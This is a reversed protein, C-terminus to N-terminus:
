YRKHCLVFLTSREPETKGSVYFVKIGTPFWISKGSPKLDRSEQQLCLSQTGASLILVASHYATLYLFGHESCYVLGEQFLYINQDDASYWQGTFQDPEIATRGLGAILFLLLIIFGFFSYRKM